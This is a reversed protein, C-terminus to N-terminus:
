QIVMRFSEHEMHREFATVVPASSLVARQGSLRGVRAGFGICGEFHSRYGMAKDGALNGPHIRIGLRPDTGQLVYMHRKFRPSYTWVAQYEGSPIRSVSFQNDRWPLEISYARFGLPTHVIGITGQDSDAVRTVVALRDPM